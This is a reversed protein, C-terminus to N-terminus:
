VNNISVPEPPPSVVPQLELEWWGVDHWRGLKYGVKQYLAAPKFGLREHMAISVKNEMTIGAYARFFNQKRLQTFLTQYLLKGLGQRHMDPRLYVSVNVSWRYSAREHHAGAYAYGLLRDGDMVVYWPFFASIKQIRAQMDALTPVVEEFTASGHTVIPSYIELIQATDEAPLVTRITM